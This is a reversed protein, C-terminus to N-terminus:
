CSVVNRVACMRVVTTGQDHFEGGSGRGENGHERQGGSVGNGVGVGVIGQFGGGGDVRGDDM